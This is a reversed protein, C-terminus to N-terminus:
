IHIHDLFVVEVFDGKCKGEEKREENDCSGRRLCDLRGIDGDFEMVYMTMKNIRINRM